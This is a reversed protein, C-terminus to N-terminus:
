NPEGQSKKNELQMLRLFEAPIPIIIQLLFTENALNTTLTGGYKEAIHKMSKVGFGHYASNSTKTTRPMGDSFVIEGEFFNNTQICLISSRVSITLSIIRKNHDKYKSVCEIANDLANGLLSYIDMTSIFDLFDADIICSLRIKHKECYLAKESLITNLVENSTKIVSDYFMVSEEAEIIYQELETANAQRLSHIQHKLDHCKHSIIDINEKSLQYQKQREYLLQRVVEKERNLTSIQIVSLQVLLILTCNLFDTAAGLYNVTGAGSHRFINQCMFSSLIMIVSIALFYLISPIHDQYLEGACGQLRLAFIKKFIVYLVFFSTACVLFYIELNFAISPLFGMVLVENIAVYEIHQTAYSAIGLFLCDAYTIRHAKKMIVLSILFLFIYWAPSFIHTVMRNLDQNKISNKIIELIPVYFIALLILLTNGIIYIKLFQPKRKAFYHSFLHEAILLELIFRLEEFISLGLTSKM